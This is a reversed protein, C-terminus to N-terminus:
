SAINSVFLKRDWPEKMYKHVHIRLKDHKRSAANPADVKGTTDRNLPHKECSEGDSAYVYHARSPRQIYEKALFEYWAVDV